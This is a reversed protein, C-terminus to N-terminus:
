SSVTAAAAFHQSNRIHSTTVALPHADIKKIRDKYVELLFKYDISGNKEAFKILVPWLDDSLKLGVNSLM